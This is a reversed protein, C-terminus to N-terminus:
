ERMLWFMRTGSLTLGAKQQLALSPANDEIVQAFPLAGRELARNVAARLLLEGLGRRRWAPLVELMGISGEEHFGVFGAPQNSGTPFAGLVGRRVAEEMYPLGGFAHSYHRLIWPAWTRDLPRLAGDFAPLSLPKDRICM